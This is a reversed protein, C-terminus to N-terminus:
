AYHGLLARAKFLPRFSDRYLEQSCCSMLDNKVGLSLSRHSHLLLSERHNTSTTARLATSYPKSGLHRPAQVQFCRGLFLFEARLRRENAWGCGRVLLEIANECCLARGVINYCQACIEAREKVTGLRWLTRRLTERDMLSPAAVSRWRDLWPCHCDAEVVESRFM